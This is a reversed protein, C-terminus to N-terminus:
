SPNILVKTQDPRSGTRARTKPHAGAKREMRGESHPYEIALALLHSGDAYGLDRIRSREGAQSL